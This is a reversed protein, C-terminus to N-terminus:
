SGKMWRAPNMPKGDKRVEMYLEPEPNVRNTMRAVPEGRKVSQGVGVYSEAMGSLLVHYGDSTSIILLQGYTRFPGAFEIRGDVPASVQAQARTAIALGESTSGGPMKEGWGRVLRGTAPRDLGGLMTASVARDPRAARGSPADSRVGGANPSLSAYQLRPKMGPAGPADAELAALLGRITETERALLDVRERLASVDGAVSEFAARKKATMQLIQEQKLALAAEATDLRAQERLELRELKRLETIEDGLANTRAKIQPAVDGMIIASRIAANANGPSTLLAPPRHRGSVVLTAMLDELTDEGELMERRAAHLRARLALLKMESSTAQEERRRSEMAAAILDRELGGLDTAATNEAAVLAALQQEAGLREAELLELEDRSVDAREAGALGPVPGAVSLIVALVSSRLLSARWSQM